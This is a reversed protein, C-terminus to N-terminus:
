CASGFASLLNALDQLDVDGDGDLDGTTAFQGFNSLLLTLDQLGVERDGDIDAPCPIDLRVVWGEVIGTDTHRGNGAIVRGDASIGRAEELTWDGLDIGHETQLVVELDRIGTQQTWIFARPASGGGFPGSVGEITARGVVVSGDGSVGYAISQFHGGPLDGLGQMGEESTWRYAEGGNPSNLSRSVGVIVRGDTSAGEATSFRVVGAATPMWGLPQLQRAPGWLAAQREGAPGTVVGFIVSADNSIGYAYSAFEGGALDGLATFQGTAIDYEFAETGSDSQGIGVVFRGDGSVGRATATPVGSVGGPLDGFETIAGSEGDRYFAPRGIPSFLGYDAVGVITQGDRSVGFASATMGAELGNLISVLQSSETWATAAYYRVFLAGGVDSHGVATAGDASLAFVESWDAGGPLDGVGHLTTQAHAASGVLVFTLLTRYNM